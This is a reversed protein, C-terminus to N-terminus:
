VRFMAKTSGGGVLHPPQSQFRKGQRRHNHQNAVRKSISRDDPFVTSGRLSLQWGSRFVGALLKTLPSYRKAITLKQAGAVATAYM